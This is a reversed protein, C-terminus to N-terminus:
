KLQKRNGMLGLYDAIIQELEDHSLHMEAWVHRVGKCDGHTMNEWNALDNEDSRPGGAVGRLRQAEEQKQKKDCTNRDRRASSQGSGTSSLIRRPFPSVGKQELQIESWRCSGRCM